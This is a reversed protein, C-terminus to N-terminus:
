ENGALAKETVFHHQEAELVCARRILPEHVFHKGVLNPPINLDINVVHYYFASFWKSYKLSVNSM